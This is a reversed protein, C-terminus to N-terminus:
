LSELASQQTCQSTFVVISFHEIAPNATVKMTNYTMRDRSIDHCSACQSNWQFFVHASCNPGALRYPWFNCAHQLVGLLVSTINKFISIYCKQSSLIRTPLSLLRLQTANRRPHVKPPSLACTCDMRLTSPPGQMGRLCLM